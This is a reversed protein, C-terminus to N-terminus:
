QRRGDQDEEHRIWEQFQGVNYGIFLGFLAGVLFFLSELM